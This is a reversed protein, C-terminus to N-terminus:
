AIRIFTVPDYDRATTSFIRKVIYVKNTDSDIYTGTALYEPHYINDYGWLILVKDDVNGIAMIYGNDVTYAMYDISLSGGCELANLSKRQETTLDMSLAAHNSYVNLRLAGPVSLWGYEDICVCHALSSGTSGYPMVSAESVATDDGEGLVRLKTFNELISEPIYEDSLKHIVKYVGYISLTVTTSGDIPAAMGGAPFILFPEGTNEGGLIQMNGILIYGDVEFSTCDYKVGNWEVSYVRGAMIEKPTFTFNESIETFTTEELIMGEIEETYCPRNKIYDKATPDNQNWDARAGVLNAAIQKAAGNDNVILNVGEASEALPLETIDKLNPM